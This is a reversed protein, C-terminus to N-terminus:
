LKQIRLFFIGKSQSKIHIDPAKEIIDSGYKSSTSFQKINREIDNKRIANSSASKTFLDDSRRFEHKPDLEARKAVPENHCM